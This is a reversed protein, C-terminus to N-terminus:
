AEQSVSFAFKKLDIFRCNLKGFLVLFDYEEELHAWFEDEIIDLFCHKLHVGPL